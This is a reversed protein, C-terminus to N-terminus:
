EEDTEVKRGGLRWEFGDETEVQIWAIERDSQSGRCLRQEEM